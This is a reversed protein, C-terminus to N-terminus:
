DFGTNMVHDAEPGISDTATRRGDRWDRWLQQQRGDHRPRRIAAYQLRQVDGRPIAPQLEKRRRLLQEQLVVPGLEEDGPHACQAIHPARKRFYLVLRRLIAVHRVME